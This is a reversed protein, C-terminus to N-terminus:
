SSTDPAERSKEYKSRMPGNRGGLGLVKRRTSPALPSCCVGGTGGIKQPTTGGLIDPGAPRFLSINNSTPTVHLDNTKIVGNGRTLLNEDHKLSTKIKIYNNKKEPVWSTHATVGKVVTEKKEPKIEKQILRSSTMSPLTDISESEVVGVREFLKRKEMVLRTRELRDRQRKEEARKEKDKTLKEKRTEGFIETLKKLKTEEPKSTSGEGRIIWSELKDRQTKEERQRREM